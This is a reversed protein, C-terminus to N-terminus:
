EPKRALLRILSAEGQHYQGEDLFANVEELLLIEMGAFDSELESEGYLLELSKPGGSTKGLQNKHFAELILDGGPKLSNLIKQHVEHRVSPHMHSFILGVLDFENEPLKLSTFDQLQYNIDVNESAALQLASARANESFDFATVKWGLRAAFVANRGQGEAPLLLKGKAFRQIQEAFFANPTIGYAHGEESYRQDWLNKSAM